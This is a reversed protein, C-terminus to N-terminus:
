TDSAEKAEMAKRKGARGHEVNRKGYARQKPGLLGVRLLEERIEAEGTNNLGRPRLAPFEIWEDIVSALESVTRPRTWKLWMAELANSTKSHLELCAFDSEATIPESDTFWGRIRWQRLSTAATSANGHRLHVDAIRAVYDADVDSLKPGDCPIPKVGALGERIRELADAAQSWRGAVLMSEVYGLTREIAGSDIPPGDAIMRITPSTVEREVHGEGCQRLDVAVFQASGFPNSTRRPAAPLATSNM